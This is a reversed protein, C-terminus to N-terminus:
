PHMERMLSPLLRTYAQGTVRERQIAADYLAIAAPLEEKAKAANLSGTGSTSAAENLLITVKERARAVALSAAAYEDYTEKLPTVRNNLAEAVVAPDRMGLAKEDVSATQSHSNDAGAAAAYGGLGVLLFLIAFTRAPHRVKV